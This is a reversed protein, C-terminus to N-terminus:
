AVTDCFGGKCGYGVSNCDLILQESLKMYSSSPNDLKNQIEMTGIIAFAWCSGCRGQDAIPINYGSNIYSFAFDSKGVGYNYCQECKPGGVDYTTCGPSCVCSGQLLRGGHDRPENANEQRILASAANENRQPLLIAKYEAETWDSFKNHGLTFTNQPNSNISMITADNKMWEGFRAQYEQYGTYSKNNEAAWEM